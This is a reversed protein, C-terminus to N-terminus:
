AKSKIGFILYAYINGRFESPIQEQKAIVDEITAFGNKRLYELTKRQVKLCEISQKRVMEPVKYVIAKEQMTSETKM